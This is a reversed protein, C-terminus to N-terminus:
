SVGVLGLPLALGLLAVATSLTRLMVTVLGAPGTSVASDAGCHMRSSPIDLVALKSFEDPSGCRTERPQNVVINGGQGKLLLRLWSLDCDCHFPNDARNRFLFTFSHNIKTGTM